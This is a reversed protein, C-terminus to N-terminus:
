QGIAQKLFPLVVDLKIKNDLLMVLNLNNHRTLVYRDAGCSISIFEPKFRALIEGIKDAECVALTFVYKLDKINESSSSIINGASNLLLASKIGKVTFLREFLHNFKREPNEEEVDLQNLGDLLLNNWNNNISKVPARIGGEVKFQGSYLSLLRFVAKEGIDPDFEAHVVQGKDFYIFGYKGENEITLKATNREMCNLQILSPLKLDKLNGVLAM